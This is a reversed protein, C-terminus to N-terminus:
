YIKYIIICYIYPDNLENRGIGYVMTTGRHWYNEIKQRGSLFNIMIMVHDIMPTNISFFSYNGLLTIVSKGFSELNLIAVM